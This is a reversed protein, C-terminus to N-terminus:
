LAYSFDEMIEFEDESWDDNLLGQIDQYELSEKYADILDRDDGDSPVELDITKSLTISVLVRKTVITDEQNYPARPDNKAGLPYNM